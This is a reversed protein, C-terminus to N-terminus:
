VVEAREVFRPDLESVEFQKRTEFTEAVSRVLAACEIPYSGIATEAALVLGSAGDGLTNWIDNVEACTPRPASIMSEALNTAVYCNRGIERARRLIYKQAAPIRELPVERSLDGRDILIADSLSAISDLNQIGRASEIKSIIMAKHGTLARMAAVDEACSAFSLAFHRLGFELGIAIAARDKPSIAPLRLRRSLAVAKNSGVLGSSAIRLLVESGRSRLVEATAANFDITLRDGVQLQPVASPPTLTFQRSTGTLPTASAKVIAGNKFLVPKSLSGTRVQAGESDLCIPTPSVSQIFEIHKAVDSLPTHSLNLRFLTVGIESLRILCDANLTSPGVTCLLETKM